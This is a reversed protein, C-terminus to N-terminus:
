DGNEEVSCMDKRMEFKWLEVKVEDILRRKSGRMGREGKNNCKWRREEYM